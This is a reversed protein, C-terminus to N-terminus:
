GHKRGIGSEEVLYTAIEAGCKAALAKVKASHRKPYKVYIFMETECRGACMKPFASWDFPETWDTTCYRAFSASVMAYCANTVQLRLTKKM